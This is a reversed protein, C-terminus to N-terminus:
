VFFTEELSHVAQQDLNNAKSEMVRLMLTFCFILQSTMSLCSKSGPVGSFPCHLSHLQKLLSAGRIPVLLTPLLM